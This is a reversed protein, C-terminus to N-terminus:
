SSGEIALPFDFRSGIRCFYHDLAHQWADEDAFISFFRGILFSGFVIVYTVYTLRLWEFRLISVFAMVGMILFLSYHSRVESYASLENLGFGVFGAATLPTILGLLGFGVHEIGLLFLIVKDVLTTKM